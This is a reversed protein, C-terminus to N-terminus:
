LQQQVRCSMNGLSKSVVDHLTVCDITQMSSQTMAIMCIAVRSVPEHACLKLQCVFMCPILRQVQRRVGRMIISIISSIISIISSSSIIIIITIIIIFM